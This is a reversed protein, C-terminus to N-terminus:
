ETICIHAETDEMLEVRGINFVRETCRLHCYAAVYMPGAGDLQFVLEPTIKRTQGPASGGWYRVTLMEGRRAALILRQAIPHVSKTVTVWHSQRWDGLWPGDRMADTDAQMISGSEPRNKFPQALWRIPFTALTTLATLFQLRRFKM